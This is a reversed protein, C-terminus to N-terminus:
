LRTVEVKGGAVDKIAYGMAKLEDRIQDSKRFDKAARAARREELKGNVDASPEIGIFVGIDSTTSAPAERELIGLVPDFFQFADVPAESLGLGGRNRLVKLIDEDSMAPMRQEDCEIQMLATLRGNVEGIAGSVNLDDNMMNAFPLQRQVDVSMLM